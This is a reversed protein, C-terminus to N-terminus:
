RIEHNLVKASKASNAAVLICARWRVVAVM